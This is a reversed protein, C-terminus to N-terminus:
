QNLKPWNQEAKVVLATQDAKFLKLIDGNFVVFLKGDTVTWGNVPDIDFLKGNAVGWACFGGYQPLYKGPEKQFAKQNEVTAFRWTLGANTTTITELGQRSKGDAFYAVPDHGKLGIGAYMSNPSGGTRSQALVPTALSALGLGLAVAALAARRTHIATM